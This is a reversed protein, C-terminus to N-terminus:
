RIQQAETLHKQLRCLVAEDEGLSRALPPLFLHPPLQPSQLLRVRPPPPHTWRERSQSPSAVVVVVPAVVAAAPSADYVFGGYLAPTDQPASRPNLRYTQMLCVCVCM